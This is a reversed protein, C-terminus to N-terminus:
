KKYNEFFKQNEKDYGIKINPNKEQIDILINDLINDKPGVSIM